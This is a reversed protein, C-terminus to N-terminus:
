WPLEYYFKELTELLYIMIASPNCYTELYYLSKQGWMNHDEIIEYFSNEWGDNYIDIEPFYEKFSHAFDVDNKLLVVCQGLWGHLLMRSSVCAIGPIDVISRWSMSREIYDRYSIDFTHDFSFNSQNFKEPIEIRVDHEYYGTDVADGFNFWEYGKWSIRQDFKSPRPVIRKEPKACIGIDFVKKNRAAQLRIAGKNPWLINNFNDLHDWYIFPAVKGGNNNAIEEMPGCLTPSHYNKFYLFPKGKTDEVVRLIRDCYEPIGFENAIGDSTDIYFNFKEGYFSATKRINEPGYGSVISDLMAASKPDNLIFNFRDGCLRSKFKM